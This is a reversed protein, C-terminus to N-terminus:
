PIQAAGTTSVPAGGQKAARDRSKALDERLRKKEDDTLPTATRPPPMDNVAPFAAPDVTRKPMSEPLGGLAAPLKEGINQSACGGLALVSALV